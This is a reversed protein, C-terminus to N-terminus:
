DKENWGKKVGCKLSRTCLFCSGFLGSSRDLFGFLCIREEWRARSGLSNTAGDSGRSCIKGSKDFPRSIDTKLTLTGNKVLTELDWRGNVL